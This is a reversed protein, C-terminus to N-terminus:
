YPSMIALTWIITDLPWHNIIVPYLTTFGHLGWFYVIGLIVMFPNHLGDGFPLNIIPNGVNDVNLM